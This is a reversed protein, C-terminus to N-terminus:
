APAPSLRPALVRRVVAFLWGSGLGFEREATPTIGEVLGAALRAQALNRFAQARDVKGDSVHITWAIPFRERYNERPIEATAEIVVNDRLGVMKFARATGTKAAEPLAELYARMAEIGVIRQDSDLPVFEADEAFVAWAREHDSAWWSHFMEEAVDLPDASAGALIAELTAPLSMVDRPKEIFGNGGLRRFHKEWASRWATTLAVIKTDPLLRRLAPLAEIGGMGPMNIDLLVVDPDVQPAREICERGDAAEGVIEYADDSQTLVVRLLTRYHPEDDCLFVRPM